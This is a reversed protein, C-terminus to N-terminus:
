KDNVNGFINELVNLGFGVAENQTLVHKRYLQILDERNMKLLESWNEIVLVPWNEDGCFESKLVVPVAGLYVSEWIRHTDIGNGAPCPVFLTKRMIKHLAQANIRQNIVLANISETFQEKYISRKKNNNDNWAILFPIYRKQPFISTVKRFDRLVGSSRYSQREIGVPIPYINPYKGILHNAYIRKTKNLLPILDVTFNHEDSEVVLLREIVLKEDAFYIKKFDNLFDSNLYISTFNQNNELKKYFENLELQSTIRISSLEYYTDWSIYPYSSIRMSLNRPSILVLIKFKLRFYLDIMKFSLKLDM